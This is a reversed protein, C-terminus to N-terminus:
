LLLPSFPGALKPWKKRNVTPGATTAMTVALTPVLLADFESRAFATLWITVEANRCTQCIPEVGRSRSRQLLWHRPKRGDAHSISCRRRRPGGPREDSRAIRFREPALRCDDRCLGPRVSQKQSAPCPEGVDPLGIANLVTDANLNQLLDTPVGIGQTTSDALLGSPTGLGIQTAASGGLPTLSGLSVTASALQTEFETALDILSQTTGALVARTREPDASIATALAAPDLSLSLANGTSTPTSLLDIGIGQLTALNTSDIAISTSVLDNLTRSFQSTLSSSSLASATSQLSSTNGQLSNFAEVLRTAADAVDAPNSDSLRTQVAALEIGFSSVASLLLGNSSLEVGTSSGSFLSTVSATSVAATSALRQFAVPPIGALGSLVVPQISLSDVM